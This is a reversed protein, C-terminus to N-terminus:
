HRGGGGGGHGGHGGHGGPSGGLGGGLRAESLVARIANDGRLTRVGAGSNSMAARASRMTQQSNHNAFSRGSNATQLLASEKARGATQGRRATRGTRGTRATWAIWPARATARGMTKHGGHTTRNGKSSVRKESSKAATKVVTVTRKAEM